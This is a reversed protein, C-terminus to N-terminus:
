PLLHNLIKLEEGSGWKMRESGLAWRTPSLKVEGAQLSAPSHHGGMFALHCPLGTGPVVRATMGVESGWPQEGLKRVDALATLWRWKLLPAIPAGSGQVGWVWMMETHGPDSFYTEAKYGINRTGTRSEGVQRVLDVIRFKWEGM